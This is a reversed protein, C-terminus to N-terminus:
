HYNTIEVDRWGGVRDPTFCVVLDSPPVWVRFIMSSNRPVKISDSSYSNKWQSVHSRINFFKTSLGSIRTMVYKLTPANVRRVRLTM